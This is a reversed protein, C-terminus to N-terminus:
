HNDNIVMFCKLRMNFADKTQHIDAVILVLVHIDKECIAPKSAYKSLLHLDCSLM